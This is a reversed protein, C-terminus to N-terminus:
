HSAPQALDRGSRLRPLEQLADFLRRARDASVAQEACDLFKQWLPEQEVPRRFHGRAYRVPESALRRGDGLTVRVRDHLSLSPEDPDPIADARASVRGLFDQVDKRRVFGESFEASTCRGAIAAAAMAFEISFKADLANQPRHNRLITAQTASMEAEVSGVDMASFGHARKLDLMADICRHVAYCMPYLKVHIGLELIRWETGLRAAGGLDVRGQPSIARLFGLEHEVADEAATVGAASLRAALLGSQVARGVHLPKTMTGFNAVIGGALSAAIAVARSAEGADLGRLVASAAAAALTGFTATPHWGKKHHQDADRRILEAWVEYGAVYAAIMRRGDAETEAAEALIAPVLVASPHGSLAVDDYDLAHAATGYLLGLEPAPLTARFNALADRDFPLSLGRAVTVVAPEALGAMMVGVCDTFGTCVTRIAAEPVREFRMGSLFEGIERTLAM